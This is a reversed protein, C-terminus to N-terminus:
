QDKLLSLVSVSDTVRHIFLPPDPAAGEREMISVDIFSACIYDSDYKKTSLVVRCDNAILPFFIM